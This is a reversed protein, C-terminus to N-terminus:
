ELIYEEIVEEFANRLVQNGDKNDVDKVLDWVDNKKLTYIRNLNEAPVDEDINDLMETDVEDYRYFSVNNTVLNVGFEGEHLAGKMIPTMYELNTLRWRAGDIHPCPQLFGRDAMRCLHLPDIQINYNIVDRPIGGKNLDLEDLVNVVTKINEGIDGDKVKWRVYGEEIDYNSARDSM